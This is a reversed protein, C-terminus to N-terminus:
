EANSSSWSSSPSSRFTFLTKKSPDEVCVDLHKVINFPWRNTCSDPDLIFSDPLDELSYCTMAPWLCFFLYLFRSSKACPVTSYPLLILVLVFVIKALLMISVDYRRDFRELFIITRNYYKFALKHLKGKEKASFLNFSTDSCAFTRLTWLIMIFLTIQKCKLLYSYIAKVNQLINMTFRRWVNPKRSIETM